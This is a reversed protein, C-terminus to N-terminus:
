PPTTLLAARSAIGSTRRSERIVDRDVGNTLYVLSLGTEPDAWAIQGAAGNHGFARPSVTHGFGRMFSKGDDGAVTLGLTRRAEHGLMPDPYNNRVNGTGDALWAPEWLGGPNHLLAQYYRCLDVANSVGGGGPVGVARIEARNFHLLSEPTVEGLEFAVGLIEALEEPSPATGVDILTAIDGQEDPPVGLATSALGLPETIRTRLSAGCPRGDLAEIIEALVWHASTPHYEFQTGPEWNLRWSAMRVRRSEKTEWEPPGLPAHPFGSTHMLLQGITVADKGNAGFWDLHRVVPDDPSCAGEAFLQWTLGAILAKTCSFIVYRTDDGADGFTESWVIEGGLGVAAQCSPLIGGEVERVLRTRFSELRTEDLHDLHGLVPRDTM